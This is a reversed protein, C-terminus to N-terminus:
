SVFVNRRVLATKTDKFNRGRAAGALWSWKSDTNDARRDMSLVIVKTGVNLRAYIPFIQTPSASALPRFAPSSPRRRTPATFVIATGALYTARAGLPTRKGSSAGCSRRVKGLAWHSFRWASSFEFWIVAIKL